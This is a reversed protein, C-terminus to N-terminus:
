PVTCGGCGDRLLLFLVVASFVVAFALAGELSVELRWPERPGLPLM